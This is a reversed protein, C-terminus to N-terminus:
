TGSSFWQELQEVDDKLLDCVESTVADGWLLWSGTTSKGRTHHFRRGWRACRHRHREDIGEFDFLLSSRGRVVSVLPSTDWAECPEWFMTWEGEEDDDDVELEVVARCPWQAFFLHARVDESMGDCIARYTEAVARYLAALRAIRRDITYSLRGEQLQPGPLVVNELPMARFGSSLLWEGVVVLMQLSDSPSESLFGPQESNEVPGLGALCQAAFQVVNEVTQRLWFDLSGVHDTSVFALGFRERMIWPAFIRQEDLALKINEVLTRAAILRVSGPRLGMRGLDLSRVRRGDAYDIRVAAMPTAGNPPEGSVSPVIDAMYAGEEPAGFSREVEIDESEETALFFEYTMSRPGLRGVLAVKPNQIEESSSSWPEVADKFVRFHQNVLQVYTDRLGLLCRKAFEHVREEADVTARMPLARLFLEISRALLSEFLADQTVSERVLGTVFPLLDSLQTQETEAVWKRVAEPTGWAGSDAIAKSIFHSRWITSKFEYSAGLRRLIGAAELDETFVSATEDVGAHRLADAIQGAHFRAQGTALEVCVHCADNFRGEVDRRSALAKRMVLDLLTPVNHPLLPRMFGDRVLGLYIDLILPEQLLAGLGSPTSEIVWAGADLTAGFFGRIVADREDTSYREVEICHLNPLTPPPVSPEGAIAVAMRPPRLNQLFGSIIGRSRASARSWNDILILTPQQLLWNTVDSESRLANAHQKLQELICRPINDTVADASLFFPIRLQQTSRITRRAFLRLMTTKGRGTWGSLFTLDKDCFDIGAAPEEGIKIAGRQASNLTRTYISGELLRPSLVDLYTGIVAAPNSVDYAAKSQGDRAREWISEVLSKNDDRPARIEAGYRMWEEREPFLPVWPGAKSLGFKWFPAPLSKPVNHAFVTLKPVNGYGLLRNSLKEEPWSKDSLLVRSLESIRERAWQASEPTDWLPNGYTLWATGDHTGSAIKINLGLSAAVKGFLQWSDDLEVAVAVYIQRKTLSSFQSTSLPRSLHEREGAYDATMESFFQALQTGSTVNDDLMIIPSNGEESDLEGLERWRRTLENESLGSAKTYNYAVLAASDYPKGIPVYLAAQRHEAPIKGIANQVLAVLRNVDIFHLHQLLRAALEISRSDGWQLLWHTVSTEDVTGTYYTRAQQTTHRIMPVYQRLMQVIELESDSPQPKIAPSM